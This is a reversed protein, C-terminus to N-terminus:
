FQGKAIGRVTLLAEIGATVALILLTTMINKRQKPKNNGESKFIM